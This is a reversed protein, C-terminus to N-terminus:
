LLYEKFGIQAFSGLLLIVLRVLTFMDNDSPTFMAFPTVLESQLIGQVSVIVVALFTKVHAEKKKFLKEKTDSSLLFIWYQTMEENGQTLTVKEKM